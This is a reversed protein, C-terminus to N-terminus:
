APKRAVLGYGLPFRQSSKRSYVRVRPVKCAFGFAAAFWHAGPTLRLAKTIVDGVVEPVGGYASLHEVVLGRTECFDRLKHETFRHYDNPQEHLWYLFPVTLVLHGNPRMVRTVEDMLSEPSKVHELVDTMLVTDFSQEALPLPENLDHVFDLHPCPHRSNGWDMCTVDSVYDRYMQYLPVFGCGLDLLAGHAFQRLLENYYKAQIDTVLRSGVGVKTVDRSARFENGVLEFKSPSWTDISKVHGSCTVARSDADLWRVFSQPM